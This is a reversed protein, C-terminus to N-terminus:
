EHRLAVMPDVRMARRAPIWCAALAVTTLLVAAGAFAAPDTVRVGFLLNSMLRMLGFSGALGIAIGVLSLTLGQSLVLKLVDGREAGLAMRIGIEQTRQQVAQALVGYIGLSSLLLALGAFAGLLGLNFRRAVFQDALIQDMTQISAITQEGNISWIAAKLAPVIAAPAADTRVVVSNFLGNFQTYPWYLAPRTVAELGDLKVDGVVGVITGTLPPGWDKMTVRQGIPDAGAWFQRAMTESIVMVRPSEATDRETFWRGAVLRIGMTRFYESSVMHINAEPEDGPKPAPRGLIEFDTSAGGNLPLSDVIAASKVGPIEELKKVVQDLYQAARPSGESFRTPSLFLQMTVLGRPEFGLPVRLLAGFSELLLGAAILLVLAFAVESIVFVDRLRRQRVGTSSRSSESLSRQVDRRANELAPALGCLVGTLFTIMAAFGLVRGDLSVEAFGSVGGLLFHQLTPLCWRAVVIGVGAGLLALLLSETVLQRALRARGAGLAARIAFERSRRAGRALLLNALNACAILLVCGVAGLLVILLPRVPAAERTQLSVVEIRLGPDVEPNETDIRRALIETEANAQAVESGPGLRAVVTLLHSRRNTAFEGTAELPAWIEAQDPERFGAPMVGVITSARDNVKVTRGIASPDSGYRRQWLGHSLVVVDGTGSKDEEPTFWRGLFPRVRLASFYEASVMAGEVSEPEGDGTLSFTWRRYAAVDRLSQSGNKVDLFSAYTFNSPRPGGHHEEVRVLRESEPYPLPRLLVANVVSFMATNAGIGLALTLVAVAAFGPNKRLMRAAYRMDQWITEM